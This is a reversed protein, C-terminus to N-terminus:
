LEMTIKYKWFKIELLLSAKYFDFKPHSRRKEADEM